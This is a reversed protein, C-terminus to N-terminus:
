QGFRSILWEITADRAIEGDDKQTERKATDMAGYFQEPLIFTIERQIREEQARRIIATVPSQPSAEATALIRDRVDKAPGLQVMERALEVARDPTPAVEWVRIAQPITLQNSEVLAKVPEPVADYGLWKRVTKETTGIEDAVARVTGLEQYLYRCADAKDRPSLERRQVNESLSRIKAEREDFPEEIIKADIETWGLEEAAFFRRQGILIEYRDGKPQVVIPQQLGHAAMSRALDEIDLRKERQRVNWRSVELDKLPIKAFRAPRENPAAGDRNTM